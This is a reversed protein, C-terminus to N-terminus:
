GTHELVESKIPEITLINAQMTPLIEPLLEKNQCYLGTDVLTNDWLQACYFFVLGKLSDVLGASWVARGVVGLSDCGWGVVGLSDHCSLPSRPGFAVLSTALAITEGM